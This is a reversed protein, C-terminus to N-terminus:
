PDVSRQFGSSEKSFVNTFAIVITTESKLLKRPITLSDTKQEFKKVSKGNVILSVIKQSHKDISLDSKTHRLKLKLTVVAAYTEVGKKLDFSLQYDVSEIQQRREKALAWTLNDDAPRALALLPFLSLLLFVFKM